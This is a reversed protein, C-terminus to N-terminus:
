FQASMGRTYQNNQDQDENLKTRKYMDKLLNTLDKIETGMRVTKEAEEKRVCHDYLRKKMNRDKSDTFSFTLIRFEEKESLIGEFLQKIYAPVCYKYILTSRMDMMDNILQIQTIISGRSASEMLTKIDSVALGILLNMIIISFLIVYAAFFFHATGAFQLYVEESEETGVYHKEDGKDGQKTLNQKVDEPFIKDAYELEGLMWVLMTILPVPFGDFVREESFFIKFAVLFGIALWIYCLFFKVMKYCVSKFMIIYKGYGPYKGLTLMTQLWLLFSTVTAAHFQWREFLTEDHPNGKYLCLILLIDIALNGLSDM